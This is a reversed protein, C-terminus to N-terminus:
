FRFGFGAVVQHRDFDDEYNSYRYEAKVFSNPGIAHELGAGVRIGDLNTSEKFNATGTGGDDYDLGYRANTYGAKAYLLTNAGIVSGVRGGVYLDRKAKFCLEDGAVSIDSACRDTTADSAEGEIGVVAGGMQFDYGLGIGYAVGDNHGADEVQSRDWGVSGVGRPGTFPAGTQALAPAAAFSSALMAAVLYKRMLNSWRQEPRGLQSRSGWREFVAHTENVESLCPIENRFQWM